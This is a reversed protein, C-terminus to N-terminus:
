RWMEFSKVNVHTTSELTCDYFLFDSVFNFINWDIAKYQKDIIIVGSERNGEEYWLSDKHQHQGIGLGGGM